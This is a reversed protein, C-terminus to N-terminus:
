PLAELQVTDIQGAPRPGGVIARITKLEDPLLGFAGAAGVSGLRYQYSDIQESVIGSQEPSTAYARACINAAIGALADLEASAAAFGHTYTVDVVRLRGQHWDFSSEQTYGRPVDIRQLGDWEFSLSNGDIDAVASVATAPRQPLTVRGNIVRLRDTTTAQTITQRTAARISASVDAIIAALRDTDSATTTMRDTVDSSTCLATSVIAM